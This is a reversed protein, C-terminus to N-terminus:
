KIEYLNKYDNVLTKESYLDEYNKDNTITFNSNELLCEMKERMDGINCCEFFVSSSMKNEIFFPISSLLVIKKFYCAISLVGSMTASKYPYVVFLAKSFLDKIELDHIFRNIRIINANDNILNSFDLGKGAIVLKHSQLKESNLYARILLDVGKYKDVRGFFLIYDQEEELEAVQKNGEKIQETILSPFHTFGIHKNPYMSKLEGYQTQSSTTLNNIKDRLKEYGWEIYKQLMTQILGNYSVEHPHLDHVTYYWKDTVKHSIFFPALAFDGTLLHIIDPKIEKDLEMIKKVISVPYFKYFLKKWKSKPYSIQVLHNDDFGKLAEVYSNHESNVVLAFVDFCDNKSLMNIITSAFPIMGSSYDSAVFLIRIRM